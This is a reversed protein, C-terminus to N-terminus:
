TGVKGSRKWASSAAHIFVKGPEFSGTPREIWSSHTAVADHDFVVSALDQQLIVAYDALALVHGIVHRFVSTSALYQSIEGGACWSSRGDV